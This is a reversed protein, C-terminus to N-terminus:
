LLEKGRAKLVDKITSHEYGRFFFQKSSSKGFEWPPFFTSTKKTQAYKEEVDTM